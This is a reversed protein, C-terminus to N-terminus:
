KDHQFFPYILRNKFYQGRLAFIIAITLSVLYFLLIASSIYLSVLVEVAVANDLFRTMGTIVIVTTCLGMALLYNLWFNIVDIRHRDVFPHIKMSLVLVAAGLIALTILSGTLLGTNYLTCIFILVLPELTTAYMVAVILRFKLPIRDNM